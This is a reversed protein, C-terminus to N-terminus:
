VTSLGSQVSALLAEDTATNPGSFVEKAGTRQIAETAIIKRNYKLAEVFLQGDSPNSLYRPDVAPNDFPESSNLHVTGRSLPHMLISIFANGGNLYM